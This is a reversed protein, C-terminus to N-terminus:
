ARLVEFTGVKILTIFHVWVKTFIYCHIRKSAMCGNTGRSVTKDLSDDKMFIKYSLTSSLVNVHQHIEKALIGNFDKFKPM